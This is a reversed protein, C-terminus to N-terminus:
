NDLWVHEAFAYGMMGGLPNAEMGKLKNNKADVNSIHAPIATGANNAVMAQMDGYIAKRRDIDMEGRAEILKADFSKDKFQSENWKADSSYLLSFLIDPTPRPNINGFHIPSKLWHNSWYGDAPVRQVDLDMGIEQGAQQFITAMDVSSTAAESCIVPIKQGLVGAKKFHHKAKDPDFARPKLDHNRYFDQPPVPQDNGIEALNRLVSKQILERDMLYKMGTVFDLNDGPSMDLRMNMNTYNGSPTIVAEVGDSAELLRLSRGSLASAIQVDGAILANLRANTDAIAFFEFSDINAGGAKFYNPNRVGISRVGPTFEEVIFAGTGNGKSFDTTGDAVIMFHHLSLIVPLDANPASLKIQVTTTDIAKIDVMQKAISNVKSGVAEDLHRNLSFVVDASTLGQGSHFTVGKRVKITWTQADDSEISKALEMQPVGAGDLFTLRNYFACIRSYDTSNSAKAPDLTDATSSTAGAVRISGGKVPTAALAASTRSLIIGGASIAIGGATLLKLVNRRSAGGNIASKVMAEDATTWNTIKHDTM